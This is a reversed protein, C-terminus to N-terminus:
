AIMWPTQSSYALLAYAQCGYPLRSSPSPQHIDQDKRPEEVVCPGRDFLPIEPQVCGEPGLAIAMPQDRPASTRRLWAIRGFQAPDARPGDLRVQPGSGRDAVEAPKRADELRVPDIEHVGVEARKAVLDLGRGPHAAYPHRTAFVIEGEMGVSAEPEGLAQEPAPRDVMEYGDRLRDGGVKGFGAHQAAVARHHVVPEVQGPVGTM